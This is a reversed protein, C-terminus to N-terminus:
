SRRLPKMMEKWHKEYLWNMNKRNSKWVEEEDYKPINQNWKIQLDMKHRRWKQKRPSDPSELFLRVKQILEQREIEKQDM